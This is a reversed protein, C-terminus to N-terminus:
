ANAPFVPSSPAHFTQEFPQADDGEHHQRHHAEPDGPSPYPCAPDRPPRSGRARRRRPAPGTEGDEEASSEADTTDNGQPRAQAHERQPQARTAGQPRSTAGAAPIPPRGGPGTARQTQGQTGGGGWNAPHRFTDARADLARALALDPLCAQLVIDQVMPAIYFGPGPGAVARVTDPLNVPGPPLMERVREAASAAEPSPQQFLGTLGVLVDDRDAPPAEQLERIANDWWGSALAHSQWARATEPHLLGAAHLLIPVYLWSNRDATVVAQPPAWQGAPATAIRSTAQAAETRGAALATSPGHGTAGNPSPHRTPRPSSRSVERDRADPDCWPCRWEGQGTRIDLTWTESTGCSHCNPRPAPPMAERAEVTGTCRNCIWEERWCSIHRGAEGVNHEAVPAWLMSRDPLEPFHPPLPCVHRCCLVRVAEPQPPQPADAATFTRAGGYDPIGREITRVPERRNSHLSVGALECRNRFGANNRLESADARCNPCRTHGNSLMDVVCTLHLVCGCCAIRFGPDRDDDEFCLCCVGASTARLINPAGAQRLATSFVNQFDWAPEAMYGSMSDDRGLGTTAM